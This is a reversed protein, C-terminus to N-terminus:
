KSSAWESANFLRNRPILYFFWERVLITLHKNKKISNCDIPLMCYLVCLKSYIKSIDLTGLFVLSQSNQLWMWRKGSLSSVLKNPKNTCSEWAIWKFYLGRSPSTILRGPTMILRGLYTLNIKIFYM